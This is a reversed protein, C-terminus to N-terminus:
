VDQTDKLPLTFTFTSGKGLESEVSISGGHAEIIKRSIYLGLGLGSVDNANIAREFKDFIRLKNEPSIGIGQDTISFKALGDKNELSIFFKKKDGYRIANTLFNTIVQEIREQDWVGTINGSKKIEPVPYGKELIHDQMRNIIEEVLKDLEVSHKRIALKGSQIRSVDLMDDVLRNLKTVQRDVTGVLDKIKEPRLYDERGKAMAKLYVQTQLKLSTLPTKLEHSAISLFEDRSSVANELSGQLEKQDHIDTCTGMWRIIKGSSNRLPLARGLTWRYVGSHHKLRYEIQYPEGTELSHRWVKWAREQDDPHFMDNWGEGDTSGVPVGTFEYWRQNYYDHFGDPLTSWVMQPMANTIAKFKEENEKLLEQIMKEEHIDTWTGYYKQITGNSDFLPNGLSLFWRYSGDKMKIRFDVSVPIKSQRCREWERIVRERDDNHIVESWGWGLFEEPRYGVLSYFQKSFYDASGDPNTRWIGQPITEIILRSTEQSIKQEHIDTNTGIWKLIKGTSDKVPTARGLHWRYQGDHRRLRYEIEYNEGTELAHKWTSVTRDIDEPHHIPKDQWGWGETGEMGAVYDYWKKNFYIIDGSANAIFAMQPMTDMFFRQEEEKEEIVKRSQVLHTVDTGHVYVGLPHGKQDSLRQYIFNVFRTEPPANRTRQLLVPVEKGEFSEGTKFVNQLLELFGQEKIEPLAEIVPKGIVYRDGVLAQYAPNVSEFVFNEGLLVGIFAPSKEFVQNLLDKEQELNNRADELQSRLKKQDTIDLSIATMGNIKGEVFKPIYHTSYIRNAYEVESTFEEGRLARKVRELAEKNDPYLDPYYKGILEDPKNGLLKLGPGESLVIRCDKDVGWVIVPSNRFLNPSQPLDSM